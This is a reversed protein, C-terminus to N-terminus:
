IKEQSNIMKELKAIDEELWVIRQNYKGKCRHCNSGVIGDHDLKIHIAFNENLDSLKKRLSWLESESSSGPNFSNKGSSTEM